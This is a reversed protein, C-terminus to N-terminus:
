GDTSDQLTGGDQAQRLLTAFRDFTAALGGIQRLGDDFKASDGDRLGGVCDTGGQVAEEAAQQWLAQLSADPVPLGAQSKRGWAIWNDCLPGFVEPDIAGDKKDAEGLASGFAVTQKALNQMTTRGGTALWSAIRARWQDASPESATATPPSVAASPSSTIGTGSSLPQWWGSTLVLVMLCAAVTYARRAWPRRAAGSYPPAGAGPGATRGRIRHWVVALVTLVAAACIAQGLAAPAVAIRILTWGSDPRWGCADAIVNLSRVCGDTAELFFVTASGALLAAGATASMLLARHRFPRGCTAAMAMLVALAVAAVVAAAIWEQSYQLWETSWGEPRRGRLWVQVAVVGLVGLGAGAGALAWARCVGVPRSGTGDPAYPSMSPVRHEPGAPAAPGSRKAALRRAGLGALMTVTVTYFGMGLTFLGVFIRLQFWAGETKWGCIRAHLALPPVCGDTAGLAFVGCVGVLVATGAAVLAVPLPHSPARVHAVVATVTAAACLAVATWLSDIALALDSIRGARVPGTHLWARTIVVACVALAGGGVGYGLVGRLPPLGAWGSGPVEGFPLARRVWPPVGDVPRRAWAALPFLWLLAGGVPLVPARMMQWVMPLTPGFQRMMERQGATGGTFGEVAQAALASTFPDGALYLYGGSYWWAFWAGFVILMAALGLLHVAHLSRGRSTRIWVEACQATWWTLVASAAVLVLLVQPAPPLWGGGAMRFTLLEGAVLGLGLWAGARLGSPVPRGTLVAHTVARWLAVGAIGTILAAAPWATLREVTRYSSMLEVGAIVEVAAVATLFMTIARVGFLAAPDLLSEARESWVPHTRWLAAFRPLTGRGPGAAGRPFTRAGAWRAADLDAYLERTRLVDARALLVVAALIVPHLLERLGSQWGTRWLEVVAGPATPNTWPYVCLVTYPLLVVLAFALWLAETAYALNVDGNRIHALEHLVVTRFGEPDDARQAILGGHLSVTHSRGRGFVVASPTAAVPDMVFKPNRVPDLGATRSLETLLELLEPDRVPVLRGGRTKWRPLWWYGALALAIVLVTGGVVWTWPEYSYRQICEEYATWTGNLTLRLGASRDAPNEGAALACTAVPNRIGDRVPRPAGMWILQACSVTVLVALLAFRLTTGSGLVRRDLDSVGGAVPANM